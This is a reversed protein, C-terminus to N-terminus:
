SNVGREDAILEERTLLGSSDLCSNVSEVCRNWDGSEGGFGRGLGSM